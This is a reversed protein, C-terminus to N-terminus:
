MTKKEKKQQKIDNRHREIASAIDKLGAAIMAILRAADAVFVFIFV